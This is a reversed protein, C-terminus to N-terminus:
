RQLWTVILDGVWEPDDMDAHRAGEVLELLSNVGSDTLANHFDIAFGPEVLGDEDGYMILAALSPNRSTHEMPNGAKWLEPELEPGAGFFPLVALGLRDTDYPGALGIFKEPM